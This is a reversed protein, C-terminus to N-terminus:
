DVNTPCGTLLVAAMFAGRAYSSDLAGMAWNRPLAVRTAWVSPMCCSLVAMALLTGNISM